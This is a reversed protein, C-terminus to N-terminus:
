ALARHQPAAAASSTAQSASTAVRKSAAMVAAARAAEEADARAGDVLLLRDREELWGKESRIAFGAVSMACALLTKLRWNTRVYWPATRQLFFHVSGAVTAGVALGLFGERMFVHEAAAKREAREAGSERAAM